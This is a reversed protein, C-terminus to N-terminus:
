WAKTVVISIVRQAPDYNRNFASPNGGGTAIIYQFPPARDTVDNVTLQVGINKLYDNAPRDGTRYGISLDFTIFAPQYNTLLAYQQTYQAFQPLGSADCLPNGIMFCSPPLAASSSNVHAHYNMFGTVTWSNDSGGTWGLRARYNLRGGSDKGYFGDVVATGPGGLTKNQLAFNGTIGANMAGLYEMEWDYRATFDIGQRLLWGVNNTAGDSIFRVNSSILTSPALPEAAIAAVKAVFNPDTFVTYRVLANPDDLGTNIGAPFSALVDNIKVWYVTGQLYLGRLFNTPAFDFGASWNIASEPKLLSGPPRLPAAAGAGGGVSIGGPFQLNEATSCTPNLIAAASGAPPHGAAIDAASCVPQTDGTDGALINVRNITVGAVTSSESFAPARFSTGWSGRVTFGEGVDWNLAVKPNKTSGVNSYDDFRGSLELELAQVFPIAIAPGVIPVNLQAFVAWVGYHGADAQFSPLETGITNDNETNLFQYDYTFYDVGAAAKVTGGPLDFLPGDFNASAEDIISRQTLHRYASIYNLTAPDNCQFASADCFLNLYPVNAPKTFSAQAGTAAM